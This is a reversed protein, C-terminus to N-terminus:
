ETKPQKSSDEDAGSKTAGSSAGKEPSSESVVQILPRKQGGGAPPNDNPMKLKGSQSSSGSSSSSSSDLDSDSTFENNADEHSVSSDSESDSTGGGDDGAVLGVNMEIHRGSDAGVDEVDVNEGASVRENLETEARAMEPLFNRVRALLASNPPPGTIQPPGEGRKAKKNVIQLTQSLKSCSSTPELVPNPKESSDMSTNSDFLTLDVSKKNFNGFRFRNSVSKKNHNGM